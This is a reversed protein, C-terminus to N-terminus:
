WTSHDTVGAQVEATRFAPRMGKRTGARSFPSARFRLTRPEDARQEKLFLVDAWDESVTESIMVLPTGRAPFRLAACRIIGNWPSRKLRGDGEITDKTM